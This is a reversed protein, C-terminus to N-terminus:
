KSGPRRDPICTLGLTTYSIHLTLTGPHFICEDEGENVDYTEGCNACTEWRPVVVRTTPSVVILERALAHYVAPDTDVLDALVHRLRGEPVNYIATRLQARSAGSTDDSSADSLEEDGYEEEGDESATTDGTLDIVELEPELGLEPATAM